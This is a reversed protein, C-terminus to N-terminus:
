ALELIIYTRGPALQPTEGSETTFVFAASDSEKTATINIVKGASHITGSHTGVVLNQNSYSLAPDIQRVDRDEVRLTVVNVTTMPVGAADNANGSAEVAYYLGEDAHWTWDTYYYDSIITRFTESTEGTLAATSQEKSYAYEFLATGTFSRYDEPVSKAAQSVDIALNHPSWREDDRWYGFDAGASETYLAVDTSWAWQFLAAQGGSCFLSAHLQGLVPADTARLSRVPEVRDPFQSNYIAIYRAIGGEAREEIVIDAQNIGYYPQADVSGEIKVAIVPNNQYDSSDTGLLPWFKPTDPASQKDDAGFGFGNGCGALLVIALLLVGSVLGKYRKM